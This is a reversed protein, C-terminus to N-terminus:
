AIFTKHKEAAKAISIIERNKHSDSLICDICLLQFDKECFAELKKGPHIPCQFDEKLISTSSSEQEWIASSGKESNMAKQSSTQNKSVEHIAELLNKQPGTRNAAGEIKSDVIEQSENASLPQQSM